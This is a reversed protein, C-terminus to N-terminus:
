FVDWPYSNDIADQNARAHRELEQDEAGALYEHPTFIDESACRKLYGASWVNVFKYAKKDWVRGSTRPYTKVFACTRVIGKVQFAHGWSPKVWPDIEIYPRAVNGCAACWHPFTNCFCKLDRCGYCPVKDTAM